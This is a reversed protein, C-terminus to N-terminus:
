APYEHVKGALLYCLNALALAVSEGAVVYNEGDRADISAQWCQHGNSMVPKLRPEGVVAM